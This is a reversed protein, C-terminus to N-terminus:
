RMRDHILRAREWVRERGRENVQEFLVHEGKGKCADCQVKAVVKRAPIVGGPARLISPKWGTGSCEACRRTHTVRLTVADRLLRELM